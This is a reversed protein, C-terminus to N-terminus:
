PALKVTIEESDSVRLGVYWDTDRRPWVEHLSIHGMRAILDVYIRFGAETVRECFAIDDSTGDQVFWTDYDIAEFVERRVLMGATGAAVVEALGSAPAGNLSVPLWVTKGDKEIKEGFAMAYFPPVRNLYLSAVIPLEHDLLEGLLHSPFVMDDDVFFVWEYSGELAERVINRRNIAVDIGTKVVVKTPTPKALNALCETFASYRANRSAAVGIIGSM